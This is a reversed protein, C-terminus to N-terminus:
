KSEPKNPVPVRKPAMGSAFSNATLKLKSDGASTSMLKSQAAKRTTVDTALKDRQNIMRDIRLTPESCGSMILSIFNPGDEDDAADHFNTYDNLHSGCLEQVDAKIKPMYKAFNGHLSYQFASALVQKDEALEANGSEDRIFNLITQVLSGNEIDAEEIEHVFGVQRGAVSSLTLMDREDIGGTIDPLTFDGRYLKMFMVIEDNIFKTADAARLNAYKNNDYLWYRTEMAMVEQLWQVGHDQATYGESNFPFIGCPTITTNPYKEQMKSVLYPSAGSGFGGGISSVVVIIDHTAIFEQMKVDDLIGIQSEMFAKAEDRSKGTGKGDGIPFKLIDDSLNDLDKTSANIALADFGEDFAAQAVNGGANGMGVIGVKLLSM